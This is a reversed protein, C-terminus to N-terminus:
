ATLANITCLSYNSSWIHETCMLVFALLYYHKLNSSMLSTGQHSHSRHGSQIVRSSPVSLYGSKTRCHMFDWFLVARLLKVENFMSNLMQRLIRSLESREPHGNNVKITRLIYIGFYSSVAPTSEAKVMQRRVAVINTTSCM